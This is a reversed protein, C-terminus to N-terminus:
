IPRWIIKSLNKEMKKRWEPDLKQRLDAKIKSKWLFPNSEEELKETNNKDELL